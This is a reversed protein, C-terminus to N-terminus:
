SITSFVNADISNITYQKVVTDNAITTAWQLNITDDVAPTKGGIIIRAGSAKEYYMSVIDNAGPLTIGLKNAIALLEAYSFSITNKTIQTNDTVTNVSPM